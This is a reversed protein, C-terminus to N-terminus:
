DDFTVVPTEKTMDVTADVWFYDTFDSTSSYSGYTWTRTVKVQGTDSGVSWTKEEDDYYSETLKLLPRQVLVYSVNTYDASGYSNGFPCNELGGKKMAACETIRKNVADFIKTKFADTPEGEFEAAEEGAYLPETLPVEWEATEEAYDDDGVLTVSYTGPLVAFSRGPAEVGKIEAGAIKLDRKGVRAPWTVPMTQVGAGSVMQWKDAILWERGVKNLSIDTEAAENGQSYSVTVVATDGSVNSSKVAAASPRATTKEYASNELLSQDLSEDVEIGGVDIAKQADGAELAAMFDRVKAEPTFTSNVFVNIGIIGVILAFSVLAVTVIVVKSRRSVPKKPPPPVAVGYPSPVAVPSQMGTTPASAAQMAPIPQTPSAPVSYGAPDGPLTPSPMTMPTPMPTPMPAAQPIDPGYMGTPIRTTAETGDMAAFPPMAQAAPAQGFPPPVQGYPQQAQPVTRAPLPGLLARIRGAVGEPMVPALFRASTEMVAGWVPFVFVSAPALYVGGSGSFFVVTADVLIPTSILFLLGFGLWVLPTVWWDHVSRPRAIGLVIGFAAVILLVFLTLLPYWAPTGEWLAVTTTLADSASVSTQIAGGMAVVVAWIAGNGLFPVIQGIGAGDSTLSFFGIGTIGLVVAVAWFAATTPVAALVGRTVAGRPVRITALAAAASILVLTLLFGLPSLAIVSLSGGTSGDGEQWRIQFIAAVISSIVTYGVGVTGVWALRPGIATFKPALLRGSLFVAFLVVVTGLIPLAGLHIYSKTALGFVSVSVDVSLAATTTMAALQIIAAFITGFGTFSEIGMDGLQGSAGGGKGAMTTLAITLVLGSVLASLYGVGVTLGASPLGSVFSAAPTQPGSPPAVADAMSFGLPVRQGTMTPVSDPAHRQPPLHPFESPPPYQDM